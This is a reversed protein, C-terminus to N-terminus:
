NPKAIEIARRLADVELAVLPVVVAAQMGVIWMGPQTLTGVALWVVSALMWCVNFAVIGYVRGRRVVDSRTTRWVFVVFPVLAAGAAQLAWAPIGVHSSLPVAALTMGIVTALAGLFDAYLVRHLSSRM